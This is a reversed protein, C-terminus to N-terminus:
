CVASWELILRTSYADTEPSLATTKTSPFSDVSIRSGGCLAEFHSPTTWRFVVVNAEHLTENMIEISFILSISLVSGFRMPKRCPFGDHVITYRWRIFWSRSVGRLRQCFYRWYLTVIFGCRYDIFTGDSNFMSFLSPLQIRGVRVMIDWLYPHLFGAVIRQPGGHEAFVDLEFAIRKSNEVLLDSYLALQERKWVTEDDTPRELNARAHLRQNLWHVGRLASLVHDVKDSESKSSINMQSQAWERLIDPRKSVFYGSM